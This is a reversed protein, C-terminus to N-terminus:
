SGKPTVILSEITSHTGEIDELNYRVARDDIYLDARLKDMVIAHYPVRNRLLWEVTVARDAEKRATHIVVQHGKEMWKYMSMIMKENPKLDLLDLHAYTNTPNHCITNDLDVAIIQKM